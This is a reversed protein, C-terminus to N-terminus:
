DQISNPLDLKNEKLLLARSAVKYDEEIMEKCMDQVTIESKWGLDKKAKSADGLLSDVETPRFYRPHVKIIKQGVSVKLPLESFVGTVIGVEDIGKGVFELEIGLASAAWVIFERVSHQKGTAIVYDKPNEQQLMMWQMKVYDKAHGWDRLSSLNGLCLCEELGLAINTLGRTIKRTVFTEGRRPSEHNFLIGNCAFIGYAERYNICIWYSFLKAVAYPSRPYFSTTEKQPTEQVLGYLESTSAQYFRTKKELGLFRIAELIRLTGIADVDATYEPAEFSVAVHSQAGLNYIEDPEIDRIIRTLSSSDTLDGYHLKLQTKKLLQEQYIHDIRQTNFSSSRRKIGHVQYGKKLLFETLYSGDQGTIGTILAKKM